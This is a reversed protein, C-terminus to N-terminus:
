SNDRLWTLAVNGWAPLVIGVGLGAAFGAAQAAYMRRLGIRSGSAAQEISRVAAPLQSRELVTATVIMSVRVISAGQAQERALQRARDKALNEHEGAGRQQGARTTATRVAQDVAQVGESAPLPRYMLTVRKRLVEPTPTLLARLVGATVASAPVDVMEWVVSVGSDHEYSGWGERAATPGANSWDLGLEGPTAGQVRLLAMAEASAPDFAGHVYEALDEVPMLRTWRAGARQLGVRLDRVRRGIEVAMEAPDRSVVSEAEAVRRARRSGEVETKLRTIGSYTMALHAHVQAGGAPYTAAAEALVARAFSSAQPDSLREVEAALRTGPDPAVDFVSTAAVLGPEYPLNTLFRAWESVRSNLTSEEILQNGGPGLDIAITFDSRKKIHLLGMREGVPSAIDLAETSALVGPLRHSGRAAAGALGSRYLNTGSRRARRMAWRAGWRQWANRGAADKLVLPVAGSAVVALMGAAFWVQGLGVAVALTLVPTVALAISPVLGLSWLGPSQRRFWGGYTRDQEVAQTM